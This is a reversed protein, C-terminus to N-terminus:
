KLNSLRLSDVFSSDCWGVLVEYKYVSDRLMLKLSSDYMYMRVGKYKHLVKNEISLKVGYQDNYFDQTWFPTGNEFRIISPKLSVEHEDLIIEATGDKKIALLLERKNLRGSTDICPLVTAEYMCPTSPRERWTIDFPALHCYTMKNDKDICSSLDIFVLILLIYKM